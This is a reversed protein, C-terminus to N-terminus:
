GVDSSFKEGVLKLADKVEKLVIYNLKKDTQSSANIQM